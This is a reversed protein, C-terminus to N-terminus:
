LFRLSRHETEEESGDRGKACPVCLFQQPLTCFKQVGPPQESNHRSNVWLVLNSGAAMDYLAVIGGSVQFLFRDIIVLQKSSCSDHNSPKDWKQISRGSWPRTNLKINKEGTSGSASLVNWIIIAVSWKAPGAAYLVNWAKERQSDTIQPGTLICYKIYYNSSVM